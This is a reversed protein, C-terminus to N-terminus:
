SDGLLCTRITVLDMGARGDLAVLLATDRLHRGLSKNKTHFTFLRYRRQRTRRATTHVWRWGYIRHRAALRITGADLSFRNFVWLAPHCGPLLDARMRLDALRRFAWDM